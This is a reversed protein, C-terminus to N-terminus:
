GGQGMTRVFPRLVNPLAIQSQSLYLQGYTCTTAWVAAIPPCLIQPKPCANSDIRDCKRPMMAFQPRITTCGSDYLAQGLLPLMVESYSTM